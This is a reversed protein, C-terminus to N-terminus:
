RNKRRSKKAQKRKKKKKKKQKKFSKTQDFSSDYTAPKFPITDNQDFCAWWSMSKHIDDLSNQALHNKLKEFSRDLGHNLTSQYSEYRIVRPTILGEEYARQITEMYEDPYLYEINIALFSWFDSEPGAEDGTFLGCLFSLINERSEFGEVVAYVM